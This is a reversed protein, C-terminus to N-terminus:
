ELASLWYFLSIQGLCLLGFFVWTLRERWVWNRFPTESLFFQLKVAGIEIWDGNRLVRTQFPDGNVTGLAGPQLALVLGQQPKLWIELHQDWVGEAELQLDATHSRGIRCPFHRAVFARAAATGSLVRLQVM